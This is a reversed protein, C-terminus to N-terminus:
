NRWKTKWATPRWSKGTPASLPAMVANAGAELFARQLSQLKEPNELIWQEVCVGSPMGAAILNTGTAGDLILPLHFPFSM